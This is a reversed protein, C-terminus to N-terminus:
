NGYCHLSHDHGTRPDLLSLDNTALCKGTGHFDISVYTLPFDDFMQRM